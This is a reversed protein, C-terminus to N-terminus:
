LMSSSIPLQLLKVKELHNPIQLQNEMLFIMINSIMIHYLNYIKQDTWLQLHFCHLRPTRSVQCFGSLSRDHIKLAVTSIATKNLKKQM